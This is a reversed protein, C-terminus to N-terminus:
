EYEVIFGHIVDLKNTTFVTIKGNKVSEFYLISTNVGDHAYIPARDTTEYGHIKLTEKISVYASKDNSIPIGMSVHVYTKVYVTDILLEYKIREQITVIEEPKTLSSVIFIAVFALVTILFVIAIKINTM